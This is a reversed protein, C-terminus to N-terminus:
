RRVGCKSGVVAVVLMCGWVVREEGRHGVSGMKEASLFLPSGMVVLCRWGLVSRGLVWPLAQSIRRAVRFRGGCALSGVTAEGRRLSAANRGLEDVAACLKKLGHAPLNREKPMDM